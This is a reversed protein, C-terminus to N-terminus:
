LNDNAKRQLERPCQPTGAGLILVCLLLGPILGGECIEEEQKREWCPPPPAPHSPGWACPESAPPVLALDLILASPLERHAVKATTECEQGFCAKNKQTHTPKLPRCLSALSGQKSHVLLVNCHSIFGQINEKDSTWM